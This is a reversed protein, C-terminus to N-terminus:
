VHARGIQKDLGFNQAALNEGSTVINWGFRGGAIHDLTTCLRALLFLPYAMTSLTAVVGIRSTQSGILAALPAPWPKGGAAAFPTRWEDLAFNTFRGLHFKKRAMSGRKAVAANRTM